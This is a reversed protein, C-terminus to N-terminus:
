DGRDRYSCLEDLVKSVRSDLQGHDSSAVCFRSEWGMTPGTECDVYRSEQTEVIPNLLGITSFFSRRTRSRVRRPLLLGHPLEARHHGEDVFLRSPSEKRGSSFDRMRRM